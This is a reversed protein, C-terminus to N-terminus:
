KIALNINSHSGINSTKVQTYIINILEQARETDLNLFHELNIDSYAGIYIYEDSTKSLEELAEKNCEVCFCSDKCKYLKEIVVELPKDLAKGSRM